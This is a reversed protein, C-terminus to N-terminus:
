AKMCIVGFAFLFCLCWHGGEGFSASSSLLGVGVEMMRSVGVVMESIFSEVQVVMLFLGDAGLTGAVIVLM